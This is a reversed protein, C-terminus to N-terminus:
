KYKPDYLTNEPVVVDPKGKYRKQYLKFCGAFIFAVICLVQVYFLFRSSKVWNHAFDKKTNDETFIEQQEM